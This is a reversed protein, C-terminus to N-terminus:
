SIEWNINKKIKMMQRSPIMNINYPSIRDENNM